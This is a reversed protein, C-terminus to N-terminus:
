LSGIQSQVEKQQTQELQADKSLQADKVPKAAEKKQQDQMSRLESMVEDLKKEDM